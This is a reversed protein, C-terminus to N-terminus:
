LVISETTRDPRFAVLYLTNNIYGAGIGASVFSFSSQIGRSIASTELAQGIRGETQQLWQIFTTATDYGLAAQNPVAELMSEGYWHEYSNRLARAEPSKENFFFRSYVMAQLDYLRTLHEGRFATWDPYGFVKYADKGDDTQRLESITPAFRNFVAVAGSRAIFVYRGNGDTNVGAQQLDSAQLTSEFDVDIVDLDLSAYKKRLAMVFPDKETAGNQPNLIVPTYGPYQQLIGGVAKDYMMRADIYGQLAYPYALHSEDKINFMNLVYIGRPSAWEIIHKLAAPDEPAIIVAVNKEEAAALQAERQEIDEAMDKVIVEVEEGRDAALENAALLMGRYFEAYQRAKKAPESTFPLYVMLNPRRISDAMVALTDAPDLWEIQADIIDQIDYGLGNGATGTDSAPPEIATAPEGDPITLIMGQRVGSNAEPNLAILEEVTIHYKHAIGSISEGKAVIHQFDAYAATAVAMAVFACAWRHLFGFRM